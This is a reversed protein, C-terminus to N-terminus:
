LPCYEQEYGEIIWNFLWNFLEELELTSLNLSKMKYRIYLVYQKDSTMGATGGLSDDITKIMKSIYDKINYKLENNNLKTNETQNVM